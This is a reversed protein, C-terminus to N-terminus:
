VTADQDEIATVVNQVTIIKVYEGSIDVNFEDELELAVLLCNGM